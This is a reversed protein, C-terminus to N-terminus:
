ATYLITTSYKGTNLQVHLNYPRTAFTTTLELYMYDVTFLTSSLLIIYVKYYSASWIYLKCNSCNFM